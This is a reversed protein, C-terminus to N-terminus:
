RNDLRKVNAFIYDKKSNKFNKMTYDFFIRYASCQGNWWQLYRVFIRLFEVKKGTQEAKAPINTGFARNV